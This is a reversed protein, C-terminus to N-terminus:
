SKDTATVNFIMKNQVFVADGFVMTGKPNEKPGGKYTVTYCTRAGDNYANFALVVVEQFTITRKNWVKERGNVIINICVPLEKSYFHEIGPRALDVKTDDEIKEDEWPGAISLFLECDSQLGALEKIQRGTIYQKPWEYNKGDVILQLNQKMYFHEIEPRALDVSENDSIQEDKWPHKVSLFIEADQPLNGLQKIQMGTIYQEHWKYSKGDIILELTRGTNEPVNNNIADKSM